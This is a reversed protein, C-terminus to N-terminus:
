GGGATRALEALRAQSAPSAFDAFRSDFERRAERQAAALGAAIEGM